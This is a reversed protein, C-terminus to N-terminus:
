KGALLKEIINNYANPLMGKAAADNNAITDSSVIYSVIQKTEVDYLGGWTEVEVTNPLTGAKGHSHIAVIYKFKYDPKILGLESLKKLIDEM